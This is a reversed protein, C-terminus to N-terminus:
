EKRALEQKVTQYGNVKEIVSSSLNRTTKNKDKADVKKRILFTNIEENLFNQFIAM